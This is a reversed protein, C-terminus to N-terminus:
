HIHLARMRNYLTSRSVGLARAARLKNGGAAEIAAVIVEREAQHFPSALPPAGRHSAPLDSPIIDGASRAAAVTQVVRQLEALNGPWPQAALVRLTDSTLRTRGSGATEALMRQALQPIEHRRRRLPVLDRRADCLAALPAQEGDLHDGPTTTLVVNRPTGRLCKALLTTMRASLLQVNEVIVPPGDSELLAVMGAAWTEEGQRLIETADLTVADPGTARRAETTRGTGPEGVILLPYRAAPGSGPGERRGTREASIDILVGDVGDIPACRLRVVQGSVLTLRRTAEGDSRSEEACTQVAAHDAPDLLDLAPPTALVLGQGVVIVPRGRPRAALQFAALLRRQARTSDLQLREEIEQVMRRVLPPFLRPEEETESFMDLVGEIRRTIPHIIPHGYCAFPRFAAVFHDAGRVFMGQRTELPTGVANTGIKDESLQLGPVVGLEVISRRVSRDAARIDVVRATHDALLLGVTTGDLDIRVRDLVPGAARALSGEPDIAGLDFRPVADERLGNSLAREWSSAIEPRKRGVRSRQSIGHM